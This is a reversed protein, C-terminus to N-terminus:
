KKHFETRISNINGYQGRPKSEEIVAAIGLSVIGVLLVIGIGLGAWAAGRSANPPLEAAPTSLDKSTRFILGIAAFIFDALFLFVFMAPKSLIKDWGFVGRSNM